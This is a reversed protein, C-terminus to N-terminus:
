HVQKGAPSAALKEEYVQMLTDRFLIRQRQNLRELLSHWRPLNQSTTIGAAKQERQIQVVEALMQKDTM